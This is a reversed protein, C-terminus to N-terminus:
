RSRQPELFVVAGNRSIVVVGAPGSGAPISLPPQDAGPREEVEVQVPQAPRRPNAQSEETRTPPRVAVWPGYRAGVVAWQGFTVIDLYTRSSLDVTHMQTGNSAKVAILRADLGAVWVLDETQAPSGTVSTRSVPRRWAVRGNAIRLAIVEGSGTGVYVRDGYARARSLESSADHQWRLDGDGIDFALIRGDDTTVLALAPEAALDVTVANDLPTHWESGASLNGVGRADIYVVTGPIADIETVPEELPKAQVITGDNAFWLVRPDAGDGGQTAIVVQEGVAIPAASVNSELVLPGWSTEGTGARWAVLHNDIALYVHDAGVAPRFTLPEDPLRRWSESLPAPFRRDESVAEAMSALPDADPPAGGCAAAVGILALAAALRRTAPASSRSSTEIRSSELASSM